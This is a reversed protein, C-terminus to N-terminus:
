QSKIGLETFMGRWFAEERAIQARLEDPGSLAADMGLLDGLMQAAEPTSLVADIDRYIREVLAPDTRAPALIGNWITPVFGSYGAEVITPLDPMDALRHESVAALPRIRNGALQEKIVASGAWVLQVDNRMLATIHQPAGAFSVGTLSMGFGRSVVEIGTDIISTRGTGAYNLRGPNARAYEAFEKMTKAPVDVNTALVVRLNILRAVPTLDQLPDFRLNTNLLKGAIVSPGSMLLTYGDPPQKAVYEAALMGGAGAKNEVTVARGWRAELRRALQRTLLDLSSGAGLSVVIRVAREPFQQAHAPSVGTVLAFAVLLKMWM